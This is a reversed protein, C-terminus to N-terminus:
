DQMSPLDEIIERNTKYKAYQENSDLEKCLANHRRVDQAHLGGLVGCVGELYEYSCRQCRM